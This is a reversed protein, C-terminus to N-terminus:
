SIFRGLLSKLHELGDDTQGFYEDFDSPIQIANFLQKCENCRAHLDELSGDVDVYGDPDDHVFSLPSKHKYGRLTMEVELDTHRDRIKSTDILGGDLFGQISKGRELTGVLMHLEVHEGLLHQRCMGAPDVLWMRM